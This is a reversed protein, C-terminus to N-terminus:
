RRGWGLLAAAFLLPTAIALVQPSPNALVMAVSWIILLAAATYRIM